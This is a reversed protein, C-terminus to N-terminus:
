QLDNAIDQTTHQKFPNTPVDEISRGQTQALYGMRFPLSKNKPFHAIRWKLENTNM